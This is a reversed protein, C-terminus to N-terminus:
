RSSRRGLNHLHGHGEDKQLETLDLIKENIVGLCSRLDAIQAKVRRAQTELLARRKGETGHGQQWLIAYEAIDKIPMGSSKMRELFEIWRLISVDYIRQGSIARFARPLVGVREYYRITHISLGSRQALEGIKM